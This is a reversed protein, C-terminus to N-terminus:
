VVYCGPGAANPDLSFEVMATHGSSRQDVHVQLDGAGAFEPPRVALLFMAQGRLEIWERGAIPLAAARASRDLPPVGQDLRHLTADWAAGEGALYFAYGDTTGSGVVFMALNLRGPYVRLAQALHREVSRGAVFVNLNGAWHPNTRGTLEFLDPPLERPTTAVREARPRVHHPHRALLRGLLAAQPTPGRPADRGSLAALLQEPSVSGADGLVAAAPRYAESHVTWRERPDLAPVDITTLPRWPVFAGFPAARVIAHTPATVEDSQNVISLEIQVRDAAVNHFRIGDCEV